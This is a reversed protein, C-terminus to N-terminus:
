LLTQFLAFPVADFWIQHTQFWEESEAGAMVALGDEGILTGGVDQAV